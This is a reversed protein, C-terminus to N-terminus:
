VLYSPLNTPLCTRLYTQGNTQKDTQRNTQGDKREDTTDTQRDTQRDTRVCAGTSLISGNESLDQPQLVIGHSVQTCSRQDRAGPPAFLDYGRSAVEVLM